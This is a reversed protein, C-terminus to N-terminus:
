GIGVADTVVVGHVSPVLAAGGPFINPVDVEDAGLVNM